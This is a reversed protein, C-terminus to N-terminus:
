SSLTVSRGEVVIGDYSHGEDACISLCVVGQEEDTVISM